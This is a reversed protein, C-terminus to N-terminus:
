TRPADSFTASATFQLGPDGVLVTPAPAFTLGVATVTVNLPLVVLTAQAPLGPDLTSTAMIQVTGPSVGTALGTPDVTALAPDSSTWSVPSVTGDALRALASFSQTQGVTISASTPSVVVSNTQSSTQLVVTRVLVTGSNIPAEFPPAQAVVHGDADRGFAYVEWLGPTVDLLVIARSDSPGVEAVGQTVLRRGSLTGPDLTNPAAVEVVVQTIQGGSAQILERAAPSLGVELRLSVNRPGPPPAPITGAEGSASM